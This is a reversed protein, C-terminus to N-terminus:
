PPAGEGPGPASRRRARLEEGRARWAALSADDAGEDLRGDPAAGAPAAAERPARAAGAGGGALGGRRGGAGGGRPGRARRARPTPPKPCWGRWSGPWATM